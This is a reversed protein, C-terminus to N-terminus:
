LNLKEVVGLLAAARVPKTLATQPGWGNKFVTLAEGERGVAVIRLRRMRPSMRLWEVFRVGDAVATLDVFLAAPPHHDFEATRIFLGMDSGVVEVKGEFGAAKAAVSIWGILQKETTLILLRKM